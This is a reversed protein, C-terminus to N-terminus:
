TIMNNLIAETHEGVLPPRRQIAWPSASMKFPAGPYRIERGLEEHTITTQFGRAVFQPNEFAEDPSFVIGCQLDRRQAGEFFDTASLHEAIHVLAARTAGMIAMVEPDAWDNVLDIGGREIGIELFFVEPCSERLGLEDLWDLMRQYDDAQQPPFGTTVYRGDGARVQVTMTQHVAAHRGTQRQVTEGAVLWFITGNETTVNCAACASVDIHQGVGSVDRYTLATLTGLAAHVGAIQITQNGRGRMPPLSHDDYGNLWALGSRAMITLDTWPQSSRESERGHSTVSTWLLKPHVARLDTHDLGLSALRGPREGEIVIDASDVLRRFDDAGETSTVDLTVSRKSTNYYWWWLSRDPHPEDDVFPGFTRTFHGGPPEVVIVDAGLDALTRAAGAGWFSALEVVKVGLLPGSV